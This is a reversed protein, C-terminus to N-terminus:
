FRGTAACLPMPLAEADDGDYAAVLGADFSFSRRAFRIGGYLVAFREYDDGVLVGDVVLKTRGGTVLSAGPIVALAGQEGGGGSSDSYYYESFPLVTLHASVLTRCGDGLCKSGIASYFTGGDDEEPIAIHLAQLAIGGTPRRLVQVKATLVAVAGDEDIVAIGGAGIEIRDTISYRALAFGGVPLAPFTLEISAHGKPGTLATPSVFARGSSADRAVYDALPTRPPPPPAIQEVPEVMSPAAIPAASATRTTATTTPALNEGSAAVDTDTGQSTEGTGATVTVSGEVVPAADAAPPTVSPQALAPAAALLIATAAALRPALM